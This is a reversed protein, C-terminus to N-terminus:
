YTGIFPYTHQMVQKKSKIHHRCGKVKEGKDRPLNPPSTGRLSLTFLSFLANKFLDIHAIPM